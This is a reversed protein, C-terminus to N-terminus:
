RGTRTSGVDERDERKTGFRRIFRPADYVEVGLRAALNGIRMDEICIARARQALTLLVAEDYTVGLEDMLHRADSDSHKQAKILRGLDTEQEVRGDFHPWVGEPTLWRFRWRDMVPVQELAAMHDVFDVVVLFKRRWLMFLILPLLLLPLCLLAWQLPSQPPKPTLPAAEPWEWVQVQHNDRDTIYIREAADLAVDNAFRFQGPGTGPGGFSTIKEGDLTYVDVMHGLADVVYLREKSDIVLGRPIGATRMFRSFDAGEEFVQVRRNDSDGIFLRGDKSIAVGNPFYFQGPFQSMQEAQATSGFRRVEEGDPGFVVVRHGASDGVDTVFLTGDEAFGMGLPAFTGADEGGLAIKRVFEGDLTFVYIARLRRDSVYLQQDPSIALHAPKQLSTADGDTVKAFSKLYKGQLDYVRVADAETDTAYLRGDRSIAVGIPRTLAEEGVPGAISFVYRPPQIEEEAGSGGGLAPIPLRRNQLYYYAGCSLLLLLLILLALLVTRRANRRRSERSIGQVAREDLAGTMVEGAQEPANM